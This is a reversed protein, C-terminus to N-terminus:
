PAGQAGAALNPPTGMQEPGQTQPIFPMPEGQGFREQPIPDVSLDYNTRCTADCTRAAAGTTHLYQYSNGGGDMGCRGWYGNKGGFGPNYYYAWSGYKPYHYVYHYNYGQANPNPKYYYTSAYRGKSAQWSWNSYSQRGSQAQVTGGIVLGLMPALVLVRIMTRPM